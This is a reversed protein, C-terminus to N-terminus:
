RGPAVGATGPEPPADQQPKLLKLIRAERISYSPPYVYYERRDIIQIPPVAEQISPHTAVLSRSGRFYKLEAEFTIRDGDKLSYVLYGSSTKRAFSYDQIRLSVFGCDVRRGGKGPDRYVGTLIVRRDIHKQLDSRKRVVPVTDSAWALPLALLAISFFTRKVEASGEVVIAEGPRLILTRHLRQEAKM